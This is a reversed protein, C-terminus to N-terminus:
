RPRWRKLRLSNTVVSVSSLAMALAALMPNLFGSDGLAWHLSEPVGNRGFALHLVGAAIPILLVNYGFAWVLNQRITRMTARSLQVVAKVSRVDSTILAVDAAELAADTGAGIAIGVDAQALAPADNIGDGVMAVRQGGEQLRQVQAAKGGPLVQAMVNTIGLKAAITNAAAESDGSLMAVEIGMGNLDAVANASEPRVTDAIAILGILSDNRLVVVATKGQQALLHAASAATGSLANGAMRGLEVSGIAISDGEVNARVGLGPAAQFDSAPQLALNRDAAARVIAAAVPHESRAEVSAAVALLEAESVGHPLVETVQPKGETLTGTKDFVIIDLRHAQELSEAGRILIGHRAGTGTGVMIATPTALGLACPCAIILITIANLMAQEFAPDPGLRWWLLFTTLATALVVPVFYAAVTDALRQIPAKSGQAQQVLRIIQAIATASGVKAAEFTLAGSVNVTGGYVTAGVQKEVPLSEGTLMSEDIATAGETVVGDAPIREGPRVSIADGPRVEDAPIDQEESDRIVRATRPQMGILSRIAGAASAKARAELLRGFLILAIIVASTDFYTHGSQGALGGTATVAISYLYATSTGIAILTNMNSTRHLFASWASAYIQRAAWLQVPTALVLAAINTWLAGISREVDPTLMIAMIAAASVISFAARNRLNRLESRRALREVEADLADTGTVGAAEYGADAVAQRLADSPVAGSVLTVAIQESAPNGSATLVGDIQAIRTEVTKASSPDSLGPVTLVVKESAVRYGISGVAKSMAAIREGDPAFTVSATETALNVVADAVGDVRQLATTVSSVCAACTMGEIPLVVRRTADATRQAGETTM